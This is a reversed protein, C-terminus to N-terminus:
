KEVQNIMHAAVPPFRNFIEDKFTEDIPLSNIANYMCTLWEVAANEDIFHAMHKARMMPHGFEEIYRLPGGFFQTLFFFQKKKVLDMDTKFLPATVPNSLINKYFEDILQMLVEDGLRDYITEM